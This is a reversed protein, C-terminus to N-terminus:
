GSPPRTAARARLRENLVQLQVREAAALDRERAAAARTSASVQESARQKAQANRRDVADRDARWAAEGIPRPETADTDDSMGAGITTAM